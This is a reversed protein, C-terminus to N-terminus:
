RSSRGQRFPPPPKEPPIALQRALALLYEDYSRGQDIAALRLVGELIRFMASTQATTRSALWAGAVAALDEPCLGSAAAQGCLVAIEIPDADQRRVAARLRGPPTRLDPRLREVRTWWDAPLRPDEYLAPAAALIGAIADAIPEGFPIRSDTVVALLLTVAAESLPDAASLLTTLLRGALTPIDDDGPPESWLEWLADLYRRGSPAGGSLPYHRPASEFHLRLTDLRVATPLDPPIQSAAKVLDLLDARGRVAAPDDPQGRALRLLIPWWQDTLRAFSGQHLVYSAILALDEPSDGAATDAPLPVAIGPPTMLVAYRRLWTPAMSASPDLWVLWTQPDPDRRLSLRLLWRALEPLRLVTERLAPLEGRAPHAFERVLRAATWDPVAEGSQTRGEGVTALFTDAEGHEAAYSHLRRVQQGRGAALEGLAVRAALPASRASWGVHVECEADAGCTLLYTELEDLSAQDLRGQAHRRANAVREVSPRGSRAAEVVLGPNGLSALIEAAEEVEDAELPARHRGLHEALQAAGFRERLTVLTHLYGAAREDAPPSVPGGYAAAVQGRTAFKGFAIRFSAAQTGDYWSALAIGARLGFPLLALVRDFEALRDALPPPDQEDLTILVEGCLMLAALGAARDFCAPDALARLPAQDTVGLDLSLAENNEVVAMESLAPVAQHLARYGTQDRAVETFPIEVYRVQVTPRGVADRDHTADIATVALRRHGAAGHPTFTAWPLQGPGPASGLQPTSPVSAWVRSALDGSAPSGGVLVRYDDKDGPLKGMLAWHAAPIRRTV